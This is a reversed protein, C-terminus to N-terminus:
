DHAAVDHWPEAQTRLRELVRQEMRSVRMQSIGLARATDRQNMRKRFRLELLQKELPTVLSLVWDMWQRQEVREYGDETVSFFAELAPKDDRAASLSLTETRERADLLLLLHDDSIGMAAAIERLSPERRLEQILRDQTRQLKGLEDHINRALRITNSHDRIQRRLDGVITPVAFTSFQFGREPDFREIAKMLAMAAVQELDELEVGRGMFKRALANSLPLYGEVLRDMLSRDRTRAYEALLSSLPVDNM